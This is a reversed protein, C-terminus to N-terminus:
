KRVFIPDGRRNSPRNSFHSCSVKKTSWVNQKEALMEIAESFYPAFETEGCSICMEKLKVLELEERKMREAVRQPHAIVTRSFRARSDGEYYVGTESSVPAGDFAFGASLSSRDRSLLPLDVWEGPCIKHLKPWKTV